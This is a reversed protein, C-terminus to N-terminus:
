ILDRDTLNLIEDLFKTADESTAFEACYWTDNSLHIDIYYLEDNNANWLHTKYIGMRISVIYDINICYEITTNVAKVKIFKNM